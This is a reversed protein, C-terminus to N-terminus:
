SYIPVFSFFPFHSKLTLKRTSSDKNRKVSFLTEGFVQTFYEPRKINIITASLALVSKMKKLENSNASLFVPIGTQNALEVMARFLNEFAQRNQISINDVYLIQIGNNNIWHYLMDMNYKNIMHSVSLFYTHANELLRSRQEIAYESLHSEPSAASTIIGEKLNYPTLNRKLTLICTTKGVKEAGRILYLGKELFPNGPRQFPFILTALELNDKLRSTM